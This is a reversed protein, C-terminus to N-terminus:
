VVGYAAAYFLFNREATQPSWPTIVDPYPLFAGEWQAPENAMLDRQETRLMRDDAEHVAHPLYVLGLGYRAGIVEAWRRELVVYDPMMRKIPRPLDILYAETADHMLAERKLGIPVHRAVLVSHQAVSYFEKCHGGFRCLQSLAHAIDEIAIDGVKPDLPWFQRGTFSQMWHGKRETM